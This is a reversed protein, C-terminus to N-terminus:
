KKRRRLENLIRIELSM